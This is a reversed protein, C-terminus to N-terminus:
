LPFFIVSKLLKQAAMKATADAQPIAILSAARIIKPNKAAPVFAATPNKGVIRRIFDAVANRATATAIGSIDAQPLLPPLPPPVFM